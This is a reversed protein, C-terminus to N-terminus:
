SIQACLDCRLCVDTSLKRKNPIGHHIGCLNKVPQNAFKHVTIVQRM